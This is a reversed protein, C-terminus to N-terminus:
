VTTGLEAFGMWTSEQTFFGFGLGRSSIELKKNWEGCLKDRNAPWAISIHRSAVLFLKWNWNSYDHLDVVDVYISDFTERVDWTHMVATTRVTVLLALDYSARLSPSSPLSSFLTSFPRLDILCLSMCRSRGQRMSRFACDITKGAQTQPANYLAISHSNLDSEICFCAALATPKISEFLYVLFGSWHIPKAVDSIWNPNIADVDSGM